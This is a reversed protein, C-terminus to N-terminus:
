NPCGSRGSGRVLFWNLNTAVYFSANGEKRKKLPKNMETARKNRDTEKWRKM